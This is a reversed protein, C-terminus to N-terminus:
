VWPDWEVRRPSDWPELFREFSISQAVEEEGGIWSGNMAPLSVRLEWPVLQFGAFKAASGMSDM